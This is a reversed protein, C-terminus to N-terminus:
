LKYSSFNNNNNNNNNNNYKALAPIVYDAYSRGVPQVTRPDIGPPPSIKRVRRSRSQQGGQRRYLTYQIFDGHRLPTRTMGRSQMNYGPMRRVVSPFFVSFFSDPYDFLALQARNNIDVYEVKSLCGRCNQRDRATKFRKPFGPDVM